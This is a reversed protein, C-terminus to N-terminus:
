FAISAPSWTVYNPVPQSMASSLYTVTLAKKPVWIGAWHRLNARPRLAQWALNLLIPAAPEALDHEFVDTVIISQLM